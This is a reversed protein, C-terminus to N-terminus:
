VARETGILQDTTNSTPLSEETTEGSQRGGRDRATGEQGEKPNRRM